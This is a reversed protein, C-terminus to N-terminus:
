FYFHFTRTNAFKPNKAIPHTTVKTFRERDSDMEKDHLNRFKLVQTINCPKTTSKSLSTMTSQFCEVTTQINKM